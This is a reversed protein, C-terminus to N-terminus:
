RENYIQYFSCRLQFQVHNNQSQMQRARDFILQIARPIIGHQQPDTKINPQLSDGGNRMYEIGEVTYTKGSGTQGYAFVTAHLGDLVHEILPAVEDMIDEQQSDQGLVRDFTFCRANEQNKGAVLVKGCDADLVVRACTHGREGSLLPRCRVVVRLSSGPSVEQPM